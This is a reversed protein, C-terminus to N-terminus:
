FIHNVCLLCGNSFSIFGLVRDEKERERGREEKRGDTSSIPLHSNEAELHAQHAQAVGVDLFLVFTLAVRM